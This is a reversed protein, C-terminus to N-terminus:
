GEITIVIVLLEVVGCVGGVISLEKKFHAAGIQKSALWGVDHLKFQTEELKVITYVISEYLFSIQFKNICVYAVWVAVCLAAM